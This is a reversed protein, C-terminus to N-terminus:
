RDGTLQGRSVETGGRLNAIVRAGPRLGAERMALLVAALVPALVPWQVQARPARRLLESRFPRLLPEGAKFVGGVLGVVVQKRELGLKKIVTAAALALEKGARALIARAEPDEHGLSGVVAAAAAIRTRSIRGSYILRHLHALDRARFHELIADTLATQAARGDAARTCARIAELAIRYASGEDGMIYGWGGAVATRAVGIPVGEPRGQGEFLSGSPGRKEPDQIPPAGQRGSIAIGFAVSGTGAIVVVGPKGLTVSALAAPTDGEAKVRDCRAIELLVQRALEVGGTMAMYASAFHLKRLGAMHAAARVAGIVARRMRGEGCRQRVHNAPGAVGVGLVEGQETAIAAVTKTQRGDIGLFLTAARAKDTAM